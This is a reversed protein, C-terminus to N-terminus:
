HQDRAAGGVRLRKAKRETLKLIPEELTRQIGLLLIGTLPTMQCRFLIIIPGMKDFM